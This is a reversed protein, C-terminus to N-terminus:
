DNKRRRRAAMAAWAVLGLTTTTPEPTKIQLYVVGADSDYVLMTQSDIYDSGTLYRDARTYYVGTDETAVKQDLGFTVSSVDSFLVLQVDYKGPLLETDLTTSFTLQHNEMTDLVLSGGMLSTHGQYTEYAAGGAFTLDGVTQVAGVAAKNVAISEDFQGEYVGVGSGVAYHADVEPASALLVDNLTLGANLALNSLNYEYDTKERGVSLVADAAVSVAGNSILAAGTKLKPLTGAVDSPTNVAGTSRLELSEGASISVNGGIQVSAQQGAVHISGDIFSATKVQINANNGEVRFDGTYDVMTDFTATTGSGLADSVVVTGSGTLLSSHSSIGQGDIPKGCLLFTGKEGLTTTAANYGSDAMHLVRETYKSGAISVDGLIEDGVTALMTVLRGGGSGPEVTVHLDADKGLKVASNGEATDGLGTASQVEVVGRTIVTGGTYDSDGSLVLTGDGCHRVNGSGSIDGSLTFVVEPGVASILAATGGDTASNGGWRADGTGYIVIDNAASTTGNVYGHNHTFMLTAGEQVTATNNKVNSGLTAWGRLRLTGAEVTTGGTYSNSQDLVLTGTGVKRLGATVNDSHSLVGSYVAENYGDDSLSTVKTEKATEWDDMKVLLMKNRDIDTGAVYATGDAYLANVAISKLNHTDIEVYKVGGLAVTGHISIFDDMAGLDSEKVLLKKTHDIDTGAVYDTTNDDEDAYKANVGISKLNHTDIEVYVVDDILKSSLVGIFDALAGRDTKKVLLKKNHDIDTGAVYSSGDEYLADVDIARLNHTDIEVYEVGGMTVTGHIGVFDALVSSTVAEVGITMSGGQVSTTGNNYIRTGHGLYLEAADSAWEIDSKGVVGSAVTSVDKSFGSAESTGLLYLCGAQLLTGGTYTNSSGSIYQVGSGAKALKGSDSILGSFVAYAFGTTESFQDYAQPKDIADVMYESYYASDKATNLTLTSGNLFVMGSGILSRLELDAAGATDLKLKAGAALVMDTQAATSTKDFGFTGQQVLITGPTTKVSRTIFNGAGLKTFTYGALDLNSEGLAYANMYLTEGAEVGVSADDQLKVNPLVIRNATSTAGEANLDYPGDYKGKYLAGKGDVGNGAIVVKFGLGAYDSDGPYATEAPAGSFDITSGDTVTITRDDESGSAGIVSTSIKLTADKELQINRGLNAGHGIVEVVGKGEIHLKKNVDMDIDFKGLGLVAHANEEMVFRDFGTVIHSAESTTYGDGGLFGLVYKEGEAFHLTSTHVTGDDGNVLVIQNSQERGGYIGSSLDGEAGIGLTFGSYLNVQVDGKIYAPAYYIDGSWEDVIYWGLGAADVRFAEGSILDLVINGNVTGANSGGVLRSKIKASGEMRMYIDGNVIGREGGGFVRLEDGGFTGGTLVMEVARIRGDEMVQTGTLTSHCGGAFIEGIRGGEVFVHSTGYQNAAIKYPWDKGLYDVSCSGGFITYIEGDKVTVFSEAALNAWSIGQNARCSGAIIFQKAWNDKDRIKEPNSLAATDPDKKGIASDVLVHTAATQFYTKAWSATPNDLGGIINKVCSIGGNSNKEGSQDEIWVEANHQVYWDQNIGGIITGDKVLAGVVHEGKADSSLTAVIANGGNVKSANDVSVISSYRYYNTDRAGSEDLELGAALEVYDANGAYRRSLSPAKETKGWREDWQPMSVTGDYISLTISGNGNDTFKVGDKDKLGSGLNVGNISFNNASLAPAYLVGGGTSSIFEYVYETNGYTGVRTDYNIKGIEIITLNENDINTVIDLTVTGKNTLASDFTLNKGSLIYSGSADVKVGSGITVDTLTTTTSSSSTLTVDSLTVNGAAEFDKLILYQLEANGQVQLNSANIEAPDIDDKIAANYVDKTGRIGAADMTVGRLEASADKIASVTYTYSPTDGADAYMKLAGKGKNLVLSVDKEGGVSVAGKAALASDLILSGAQVEVDGLATDATANNTLNLTVVNKGIKHINTGAALRGDTGNSVLEYPTEKATFYIDGPNVPGQVTVTETTQTLDRFIAATYGLDKDENYKDESWNKFEGTASWIKSDGGDWVNGMMTYIYLVGNNVGLTYQSDDLKVGNHEVNLSLGNGSSLGSMINYTTMTDLTDAFHVNLTLANLGINSTGVQLAADQASLGDTGVISSIALTSGSKFTLANLNVAGPANLALTGGFELVVGRANSLAETNLLTLTSGDYVTVKGKFGTNAGYLVVTGPVNETESDSNGLVIDGSGSISGSIELSSNASASNLTITQGAAVTLNADISNGTNEYNVCLSDDRLKLGGGDAAGTISSAGSLSIANGASLTQTTSGIDLRGGNELRIEGSGSAMINDSELKLKGGDLILKGHVADTASKVTVAGTTVTLSGLNKIEEVTASNSRAEIQLNHLTQEGGDICLGKKGLSENSLGDITCGSGFILKAANSLVNVQYDHNYTAGAADLALTGYLNIVPFESASVAVSDASTRVHVTAGKGVTLEDVRLRNFFVDKETTNVILNGATVIGTYRQEATGGITISGLKNETITTTTLNGSVSASGGNVVLEMEKATVNGTITLTGATAADGSLVTLKGGVTKGGVTKGIVTMDGAITTTLNQFVADEVITAGGLLAVSGSGEEALLGGQVVLQNNFTVVGSGPNLSADGLVAVRAGKFSYGGDTVDLKAVVMDQTVSIERDEAGGEGFHVNSLATFVESETGGETSSWNESSINWMKDDAGNWYLHGDHDDSLKIIGTGPSIVVAASNVKVGSYVFHVNYADWGELTGGDEIVILTKEGMSVGRLDFTLNGLTLVSGAAVRMDGTAQTKEFTVFGTLSSAGAFAINHLSAYETSTGAYLTVDTLIGPNTGDASTILNHVTVYDKTVPRYLEGTVLMQVNKLSGGSTGGTVRNAGVDISEGSALQVGGDQVPSDPTEANEVAGASRSAYAMSRMSFSRLSLMAPAATESDADTEEPQVSDKEEEEDEEDELEKKKGPLEPARALFDTNVNPLENLGPATFQQGSGLTVATQAPPQTNGSGETTQVQQPAQHYRARGGVAIGWPARFGVLAHTMVRGRHTHFLAERYARMSDSQYQLAEAFHKMLEDNAGLSLEARGYGMKRLQAALRRLLEQGAEGVLRDDDELLAELLWQREEVTLEQEEGESAMRNLMDELKCSGDLLGRSLWNRSYVHTWAEEYAVLPEKGAERLQRALELAEKRLATQRAIMAEQIAPNQKLEALTDEAFVEEYREGKEGLVRIVRPASEDKDEPMVWHYRLLDEDAVATGVSCAAMFYPLWSSRAVSARVGFHVTPSSSLM